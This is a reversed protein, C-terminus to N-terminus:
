PIQQFLWLEPSAIGQGFRVYDSPPATIAKGGRVPLLKCEVQTPWVLFLLIHSLPLGAEVGEGSVETM